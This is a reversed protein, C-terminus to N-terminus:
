KRRKNKQFVKNFEVSVEKPVLGEICGNYQAVEKVMSSSLYAFIPSTIIFITEIKSDLKRNMQAMQFEYEFDSVARLGKLIANAKKRRAFDILLGSFGEVEVNSLDKTANKLFNIRQKVSLLPKKRPNEIVSVIVKDFLQTARKIVDLHGETVPDFSGPCVAIRM